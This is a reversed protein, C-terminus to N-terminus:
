ETALLARDVLDDEDDFFVLGEVTHEAVEVLDINVGFEVVPQDRAFGGGAQRRRNGRAADPAVPTTESKTMAIEGAGPPQM